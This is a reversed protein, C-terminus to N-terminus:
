KIYGYKRLLEDSPGGIPDVIGRAALRREAERVLEANNELGGADGYKQHEILMQWYEPPTPPLKRLQLGGVQTQLFAEWYENNNAFHKLYYRSGVVGLEEAEEWAKIRAERIESELDDLNKKTNNRENEDASNALDNELKTKEEMLPRLVNVDEEIYRLRQAHLSMMTDYYEQTETLRVLKVGLPYKKAIEDSIQIESEGQESNESQSGSSIATQAKKVDESNKVALAGAIKSSVIKSSTPNVPSKRSVTQSIQSMSPKSMEKVSQHNHWMLFGSGGTILSITIGIIVLKTKASIKMAEIGGVFIKKAMDQWQLIWLGSLVKMRERVHRKARFLRVALTNRSLGHRIELEDYSADDIYREKLLQSETEPLEDIAKMVKALTERLILTEDVSPMNYIMDENLELYEQRKRFWDQCHYKAIKKLWFSFQEPQRLSALGQYAELFVEQTLDKADEPNKVWSMILAYIAAYYKMILRHFAQEDGALTQKVLLKDEQMMNVGHFIM